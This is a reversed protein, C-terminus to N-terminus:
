PDQQFVPIPIHDSFQASFQNYKLFFTKKSFLFFSCLSQKIISGHCFCGFILTNIGCIYHLTFSSHISQHISQHISKEQQHLLHISQPLLSIVQKFFFVIVYTYMYGFYENYEGVGYLTNMWTNVLTNV